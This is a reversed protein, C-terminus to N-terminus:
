TSKEDIPLKNSDMKFNDKALCIYELAKAYNQINFFAIAVGCLGNIWRPNLKLGFSFWCIASEFKALELYGLALSFM